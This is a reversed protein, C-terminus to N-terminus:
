DESNQCNHFMHSFRSNGYNHMLTVENVRSDPQDGRTAKCISCRNCSRPHIYYDKCECDWYLETTEVDSM